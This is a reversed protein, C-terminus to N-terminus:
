VRVPAALHHPLTDPWLPPPVVIRKSRPVVERVHCDTEVQARRVPGLGRQPDVGHLEFLAHGRRGVRRTCRDLREDAGVRLPVDEDVRGAADVRADQRPVVRARRLLEVARHTHGIEEVPPHVVTRHRQLERGPRAGPTAVQHTRSLAEEAHVPLVAHVLARVGLGNATRHDLREPRRVAHEAHVVRVPDREQEVQRVPRADHPPAIPRDLPLRDLRTRPPEVEAGGVGLDVTHEGRAAPHEDHEREGRGVPRTRGVHVLHGGGRPAVRVEPLAQGHREGGFAHGVELAVHALGHAVVAVPDRM